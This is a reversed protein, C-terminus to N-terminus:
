YYLINTRNGPVPEERRGHRLPDRLIPLLTREPQRHRARPRQAHAGGADAAAGAAGGAAVGAGVM